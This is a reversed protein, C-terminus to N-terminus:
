KHSVSNSSLVVNGEIDLTLGIDALWAPFRKVDEPTGYKEVMAVVRKWDPGVWSHVNKGSILYTAHQNGINNPFTEICGYPLGKLFGRAINTARATPKVFRRNHDRLGIYRHWATDANRDANIMWEHQVDESESAAALRAQELLRVRYESAAYRRQLRLERVQERKNVRCEEALSLAKIKLEYSM